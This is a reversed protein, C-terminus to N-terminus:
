RCRGGGEGVYIVEGLKAEADGLVVGGRVLRVRVSEALGAGAGRVVFGLEVLHIALSVVGVGDFGAFYILRIARGWLSRPPLTRMASPLCSAM